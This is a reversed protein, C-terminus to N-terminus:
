GRGCALLEHALALSHATACAKTSRRHGDGVGSPERAGLVLIRPRHASSADALHRSDGLRHGVSLVFACCRRQSVGRFSVFSLGDAAQMTCECARVFM